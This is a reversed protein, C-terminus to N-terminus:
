HRGGEDTLGLIDLIPDRGPRVRASVSWRGNLFLHSSPLLGNSVSQALVLYNDIKHQQLQKVTLKSPQESLVLLLHGKWRRWVSLVGFCQFCDTPKYILVVSTDAAMVLEGLNEGTSLQLSEIESVAIGCGSAMASVGLTVLTKVTIRRRVVFRMRRGNWPATCIDNRLTM